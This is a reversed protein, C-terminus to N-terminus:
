DWLSVRCNIKFEDKLTNELETKVKNAVDRSIDKEVTNVFYGIIYDLFLDEGTAITTVLLELKSPMVLEGYDESPLVFRGSGGGCFLINYKDAIDTIADLTSEVNEVNVPVMISIGNQQFEGKHLKKRLRRKM